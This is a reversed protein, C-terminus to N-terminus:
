KGGFKFSATVGQPTIGMKQSDVFKMQGIRPFLHSLEPEARFYTSHKLSVSQGKGVAACQELSLLVHPLHSISLWQSCKEFLFIQLTVEPAHTSHKFLLLSVQLSPHTQLLMPTHELQVFLELQGAWIQLELKPFHVSHSTSSSQLELGNMSHELSPEQTVQVVEALQSRKLSVLFTQLTLSSPDDDVHTSHTM